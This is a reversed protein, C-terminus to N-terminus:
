PLNRITEKLAEEIEELTKDTVITWTHSQKGDETRRSTDRYWITVGIRTKKAKPKEGLIYTM